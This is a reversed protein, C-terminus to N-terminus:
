FTMVIMSLALTGTTIYAAVQHTRARQSYDAHRGIMSGLIPTVIMGAFHVWALTKHLTTTSAEDRRILPPPSFISLAATCGYSVIAAAVFTKHADKTNKGNILQQGYYVATGMLGLTVFGSIQHLTLMTRRLQLESKRVEPTLTSAIGIGRLVGSEGWMTREMLSMNDPLLKRVVPKDLTAGSDAPNASLGPAAATSDIHAVQARLTFSFMVVLSVLLLVSKM